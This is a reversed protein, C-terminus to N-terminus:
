FVMLYLNQKQPILNVLCQFIKTNLKQNTRIKQSMIVQHKDPKNPILKKQNKQSKKDVINSLKSKNDIDGIGSGGGNGGLDDSHKSYQSLSDAM